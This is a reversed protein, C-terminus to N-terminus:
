GASAGVVMEILYQPAAALRIPDTPWKVMGIAPCVYTLTCSLATHTGAVLLTADEKM